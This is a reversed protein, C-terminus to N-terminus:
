LKSTISKYLKLLSEESSTVPDDLNFGVEFTPRKELVILALLVAFNATMGKIEYTVGNVPSTYEFCHFIFPNGYFMMYNQHYVQPHLFYDLPVLFVDKVEDPNPQPEFDQDVFGVVPTTLIAKDFIHPVLCCIIEVQHPLLGIEEQTERLATAVEDVDGAESKGGPFCVQGPSRRLKESRLTFLLHLKGEKVMLPLLVSCKQPLLYSFKTGVDHKKLRAKAADLLSNGHIYNTWKSLIGCREVPPGSETELDEESGSSNWSQNDSMSARCVLLLGAEAGQPSGPSAGLGRLAPDPSLSPFLARKPAPPLLLLSSTRCGRRRRRRADECLHKKM